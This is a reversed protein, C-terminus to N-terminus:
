PNPGGFAHTLAQGAADQRSGNDAPEVIPPMQVGPYGGDDLDDGGLQGEPQVVGAPAQSWRTAEIQQLLREVLGNYHRLTEEHDQRVRALADQMFVSTGELDERASGRVRELEEIWMRERVLAHSRAKSSHRAVFVIAGVVFALPVLCATLLIILATSDSPM